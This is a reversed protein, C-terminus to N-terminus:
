EVEALADALLLLGCATQTHSAGDRYETFVGVPLVTLGCDCIAPTM